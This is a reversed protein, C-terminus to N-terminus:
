ENDSEAPKKPKPKGSPPKTHEVIVNKTFDERDAKKIDTPKKKKDKEEGNTVRIVL